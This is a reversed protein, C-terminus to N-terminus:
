RARTRTSSASPCAGGRRSACAGRPPQSPASPSRRPPPPPAQGPGAPSAPVLDSLRGWRVIQGFKHTTYATAGDATLSVDQFGGVGNLKVCGLYAGAPNLVAIGPLAIDGCASDAITPGTLYLRGAADTAGGTASINPAAVQSVAGNPLDIPFVYAYDSLDACQGLSTRGTCGTLTTAALGAANLALGPAFNFFASIATSGILVQAPPQLAGDLFTLRVVYRFNGTTRATV